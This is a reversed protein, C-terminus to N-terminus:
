VPLTIVHTPNADNKRVVMLTDIILIDNKKTVTLYPYKVTNKRKIGNPYIYWGLVKM